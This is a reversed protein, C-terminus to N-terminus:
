GSKWPTSLPPQCKKPNTNDSKGLTSTPRAKDSHPNLRGERPHPTKGKGKGTKGITTTAGEKKNHCNANGKQPQPQGKRRPNCRQGGFHLQPGERPQHNARGRYAVAISVISWISRWFFVAKGVSGDLMNEWTKRDNESKPDQEWRSFTCQKKRLDWESPRLWPKLVPWLRRFVTCNITSPVPIHITM